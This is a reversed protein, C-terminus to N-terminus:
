RCGSRASGAPWSTTCRGTARSRSSRSRGAAPSGAPPRTWSSRTARRRTCAASRSSSRGSTRGPRARHAGGRAHPAGAAPAARLGAGPPRRPRGAAARQRRPRRVRRAGRRRRPHRRARAAALVRRRLGGGEPLANHLTLVLPPSGPALRRAAAAVLGARLGHAHVLDADALARRLDAVARADAVPALGASIGVTRFSAGASTFAFLEDTAAPGCVQVAAGAALLPALISRVHTGVGGTSTALVETVRRGALPAPEAATRSPEAM